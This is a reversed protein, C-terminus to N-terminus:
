RRKSKIITQVTVSAAPKMSSICFFSLDTSFLLVPDQLVSLNPPNSQSSVMRDIKKISHPRTPNLAIDFTIFLQNSLSLM